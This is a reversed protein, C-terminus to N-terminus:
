DHDARLAAPYSGAAMHWVGAAGRQALLRFLGLTAGSVIAFAIAEPWGVGRAAPNDPVERDTMQSWAAAVAKRGLMGAIIGTPLAVANWLVDEDLEM